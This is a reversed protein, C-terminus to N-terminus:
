ILGPFEKRLYDKPGWHFVCVDNGSCVCQTEVADIDVKFTSSLAGAIIGELLRDSHKRVDKSKLYLHLTLNKYTLFGHAADADIVKYEVMGWGAFANYKIWRDLFDKYSLGYEKGIPISFDYMGKKMIEYLKRGEAENNALKLTYSAIFNVPFMLVRQNDLTIEGERLTVERSLLLREFINM